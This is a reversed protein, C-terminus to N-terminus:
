NSLFFKIPINFSTRVAKGRQTGPKWRPMNKVVRVAEEDCGNGIGRLVKVHSISGDKEVIFNVFVMGQTKAKKAQEPYKLTTSLYHMLGKTGGPFKPLNEVTTFIKGTDVKLTVSKQQETSMKTTRAVKVKKDVKKVKTSTKLAPQPSNNCALVTLSLAIVTFLLKVTMRKQNKQNKMMIMRKKLLSYSFHHTIPSFEMGSAERFLLEPYSNGSRESVAMVNDALFEHNEKVDRKILYIFPNFWQFISIIELVIIDLSHMQRIHAKEHRIIVAVKPNEFLKPNIFILNFFSFVPVNGKTFVYRIGGERKTESKQVLRYLRILSWLFRLSTLLVGFFYFFRIVTAWTIGSFAVPTAKSQGILIEGLQVVSLQAVSNQLGEPFLEKSNLLSILVAFVTTFLLYYRNFRFDIQKKLVLFGIFYFIGLSLFSKMFYLLYPNM